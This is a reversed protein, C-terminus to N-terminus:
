YMSKSKMQKENESFRINEVIITEL